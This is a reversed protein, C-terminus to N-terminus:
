ALGSRGYVIRRNFGAIDEQNEARYRRLALRKAIAQERDGPEFRVTFRGGTDESRLPLGNEDCLTLWEGEIFYCAETAEGTDGPGTPNSVVAICRKIQRTM